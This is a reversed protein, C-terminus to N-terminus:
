FHVGLALGWSWSSFDFRAGDPLLRDVADVDVRPLYVYEGTLALSLSSYLYVRFDSFLLGSIRTRDLAQRHTVSTGDPFQGRTTVVAFTGRLSASGIGAGFLWAVSRHLRGHLPEYTGVAYWGDARHDLLLRQTVDDYYTGSFDTSQPEALDMYAAGISVGPWATYTVQLKRFFTFPSDAYGEWSQYMPAPLRGAAVLLADMRADEAPHVAATEVTFHLRTSPAAPQLNRDSLAAADGHAADVEPTDVEPTDRREEGHDTALGILYSLGGTATAILALHILVPSADNAYADAYSGPANERPLLLMAGVWTGLIAGHVAVKAAHHEGSRMDRPMEVPPRLTGGASSAAISDNQAQVRTACLLTILLICRISNDPYRRVIRTHSSDDM